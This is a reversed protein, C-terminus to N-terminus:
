LIEGIDLCLIKDGWDASVKGNKPLELGAFAYLEATPSIGLDELFDMEGGRLKARNLRGLDVSAVAPPVRGNETVCLATAGVRAAPSSVRRLILGKNFYLDDFVDEGGTEKSIVTFLRACGECVGIIEAARQCSMSLFLEGVPLPALTELIKPLLPLAFDKEATFQRAYEGAIEMASPSILAKGASQKKLKKLSKKNKLRIIEASGRKERSISPSFVGGKKRAALITLM